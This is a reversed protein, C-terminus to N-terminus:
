GIVNRKWRHMIKKYNPECLVCCNKAKTIFSANEIHMSLRNRKLLFLEQSKIGFFNREIVGKTKVHAQNYRAEAETRPNLVPMLTWPQLTFGSDGKM